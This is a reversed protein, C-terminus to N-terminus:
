SVRRKGIPLLAGGPGPEIPLIPLLASKDWKCAYYDYYKADKALAARLSDIFEQVVRTDWRAQDRLAQEAGHMQAHLVQIDASVVDRRTRLADRETALAKEHETRLHLAVDAPNPIGVKALAEERAASLMDAHLHVLAGGVLPTAGVVFYICALGISVQGAGGLQARLFSIGGVVATIFFLAASGTILNFSRRRDSDIAAGIRAFSWECIVFLLASITVAAVAWGIISPAAGNQWEATLNTPDLGSTNTLAALCSVSEGAMTLVEFLRWLVIRLRSPVRVPADIRTSGDDVSQIRATVAASRDSDSRELQEDIERARREMMRLDGEQEELRRAVVLASAQNTNRRFAAEAAILSPVRGLDESVDLLDNPHREDALPLVRFEGAADIETEPIPALVDHPATARYIAHQSRLYAVKPVNAHVALAAGIRAGLASRRARRIPSRRLGTIPQVAVPIRLQRKVRLRNLAIKGITQLLSM